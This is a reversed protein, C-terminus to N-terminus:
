GPTACSAGGSHPGGDGDFWERLKFKQVKTSSMPWATVFRVHRPAKFSAIRGRCYDLIDAETAAAGPKLEIFAAAVELLRKDPVGIVTAMKVAPHTALFSEIEVAAVNEGGVKLMDKIRGHYRIQNRETLSCLDGTRLWGDALSEANKEPAKHYGAFVSYGKVWIEGRKGPPLTRLSDPDVIKVEVGAFPAGCTTLRTELDEDPHNFSIVGCTETLGYAGTQVAQPFAKQFRRLMETPAVNNIRRLRRLDTKPFRPHSILDNTVTPFSPFAVTARERELMELAAGAEVRNMSLMAAGADFCCLLPLIAAMHFMPLPAWFRDEETLFYRQRNMAAGNRVLAGHSLPCGKPNATTGSTYMMIAPAAPAVAEQRALAAGQNGAAAFSQWPIFGTPTAASVSTIFRLKPARRIRLAHPRQADALDPFAERLLAAFDVYESALSSTALGVLDANEVVYALEEAKYRANVPVAVAGILAIGFLLEIYDLCNPMLIGVHEGPAVGLATLSQARRRAAEALAAYSLRGDPFVLADREPFRQAANLLLAGLTSAPVSAEAPPAPQDAAQKAPSAAATIEGETISPTTM